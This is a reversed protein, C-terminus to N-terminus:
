APLSVTNRVQQDAHKPNIGLSFAVEVTEDFKAKPLGRLLAVAEKPAYFKAREFLEAEKKQRKTLKAM